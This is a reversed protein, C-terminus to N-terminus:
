PPPATVIPAHGGHGVTARRGQFLPGGGEGSVSIAVLWGLPLVMLFLLILGAGVWVPLSRDTMLQLPGPGGGFRGMHAPHWVRERLRAAGPERPQAAERSRSM